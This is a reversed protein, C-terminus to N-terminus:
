SRVGWAQRRWGVALACVGSAILALTGPEPITVLSQVEGPAYGLAAVAAAVTEPAAGKVLLFRFPDSATLSSDTSDLQMSLLYLGDALPSTTSAGDGLMRYHVSAHVNANSFALPNPFLFSEYPGADSTTMLASPSASSGRYAQAQVDGADVFAAGDWAKLGDVFGLVFRSGLPFPAPNTAADYGYGYAFGPWGIYNPTGDLQTSGDPQARWVGLYEALPMVYLSTAPTLATSYASDDVIRRTVIKGNDNTTQIQPGHASATRAASVFAVSVTAVYLMFRM